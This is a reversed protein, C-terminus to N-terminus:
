IMGYITNFKRIFEDTGVPEYQRIADSDIMKLVEGDLDALTCYALDEGTNGDFTYEESIEILLPRNM